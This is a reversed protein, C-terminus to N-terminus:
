RVIYMKNGSILTTISRSDAGALVYCNGQFFTKQASDWTYAVFEGDIKAIGYMILIHGIFTNNLETSLDCSSIIIKTNCNSMASILGSESTPADTLTLGLSEFYKKTNSYSSVGQANAPDNIGNPHALSEDKATKTTLAEAVMFICDYTIVMGNADIEYSSTPIDTKCPNSSLPSYENDYITGFTSVPRSTLTECITDSIFFYYSDNRHATEGCLYSGFGSTSETYYLQAATETTTWKLKGDQMYPMLNLTLVMLLICKKLTNM